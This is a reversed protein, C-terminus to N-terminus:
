KRGRDGAAQRFRRPERRRVPQPRRPAEFAALEVLGFVIRCQKRELQLLIGADIDDGVALLRALM